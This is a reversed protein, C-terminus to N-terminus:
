DVTVRPDLVSYTLDTVLNIAITGAAFIFTLSQVVQYDRAFISQEMWTGLGPLAFVTETVVAGGIAYSLQLGVITVISVLAARLVHRYLITRRPLGKARAFDVFTRGLADLVAARLNRALLAAFSLSLTLAPLFLHVLHGAFGQGFGTAPLWHLKVAFVLLLLLGIWFTPSVLPITTLVRILQDPWGDRHLAAAFALPVAVMIGLVMSYVVLFATVEARPGLLQTVPTRYIISTGLDGTALHKVYLLYQTALPRDLGLQHRFAAIAADSAKDGLVMAAPDGPLLKLLLFSVITVLILVPIMQAIRRAAYQLQKV